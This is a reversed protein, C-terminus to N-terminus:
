LKKAAAGNGGGNISTNRPARDFPAHVAPHWPQREDKSVVPHAARAEVDVQSALQRASLRLRTGLFGSPRLAACHPNPTDRGAITQKVVFSVFDVFNQVAQSEHKEDREHNYIAARSPLTIRPM